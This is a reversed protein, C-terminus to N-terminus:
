HRVVRNYVSGLLYGSVFGLGLGYLFGIISGGISVSYGPLYQGLLSLHPGVKPGGKIVLWLTAVLLVAGAFAGLVVGMTVSNLRVVVTSIADDETQEHDCM